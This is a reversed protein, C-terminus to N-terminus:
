IRFFNRCWFQLSIQLSCNSWARNSKGARDILVSIYIKARKTKKIQKTRLRRYENKRGSASHAVCVVEPSHLGSRKLADVVTEAHWVLGEDTRSVDLGPTLVRHGRRELEQALLKWGEPGQGSSHILCYSTM